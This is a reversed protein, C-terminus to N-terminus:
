LLKLGVIDRCPLRVLGDFVVWTARDVAVSAYLGWIGQDYTLSLEDRTLQVADERHDVTARFLGAYSEDKFRLQRNEDIRLARTKLLSNLTLMTAMVDTDREIGGMRHADVGFRLCFNAAITKGAEVPGLDNGLLSFEVGDARWEEVGGDWTTRLVEAEIKHHLGIGAAHGAEHYQFERHMLLTGNFADNLPALMLKASDAAFITTLTRESSQEFRRKQASMNNLARGSQIGPLAWGDPVIFAEGSDGYAFGFSATCWFPLIESIHEPEKDIINRLLANFNPMPPVSIVQGYIGTLETTKTGLRSIQYPAIFLFSGDQGVFEGTAFGDSVKTWNETQLAIITADLFSMSIGSAAVVDKHERLKVLLATGAQRGNQRFTDCVEIIEPFETRQQMADKGTLTHGVAEYCSQTALFIDHM